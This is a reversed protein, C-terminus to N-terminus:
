VAYRAGGYYVQLSCKATRSREGRSHKSEGDSKWHINALTEESSINYEDRELKSILFNETKPERLM